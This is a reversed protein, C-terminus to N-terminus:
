RHHRNYSVMPLSLGGECVSRIFASIPQITSSLFCICQKNSEWFLCSNDNHNSVEGIAEPRIVTQNVLSLYRLFLDWVSNSMSLM